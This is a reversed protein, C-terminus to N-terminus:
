LTKNQAQNPGWIRVRPRMWQQSNVDLLQAATWLRRGGRFMTRLADYLM